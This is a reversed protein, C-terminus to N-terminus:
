AMDNVNVQLPLDGRDTTIFAPYVDSPPRQDGLLTTVYKLM